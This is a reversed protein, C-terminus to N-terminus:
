LWRERFSVEVIAADEPAVGFTTGTKPELRPFRSAVDLLSLDVMGNKRVVARECDIELVDGATAIYPIQTEQVTNIQDVVVEHFIVDCPASTGYTAAHLQVQALQAAFQNNVDVYQATWRTHYQQKASDFMGIFARWVNGVREAQLVGYFDNWVGPRAGHTNVFYVGNSLSGARVEAWVDDVSAFRDVLAMKGIVAGNADLLYVEARGVKGGRNRLTVWATVRFDTLTQSLSKKLAPGHWQSGTGYSQVRLDAGDSYFSGAVVGGDVTTGNVWGTTSTLQDYLIRTEREVVTRDGPTVRCTKPVRDIISIIFEKIFCGRPESKEGHRSLTAGM